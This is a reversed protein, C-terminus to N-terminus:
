WSQVLWNNRYFETQPKKAQMSTEEPVLYHNWYEWRKLFKGCNPNLDVLFFIPSLANLDTEQIWPEIQSLNLAGTSPLLCEPVSHPWEAQWMRRPHLGWCDLRLVWAVWDGSIHNWGPFWCNHFAITLMIMIQQHPAKLVEHFFLESNSNKVCVENISQCSFVRHLVLLYKWDTSQQQHLQSKAVNLLKSLTM